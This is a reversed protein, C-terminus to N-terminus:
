TTQYFLVSDLAFPAFKHFLSNKNCNMHLITFTAHAIASISLKINSFCLEFKKDNSFYRGYRIYSSSISVASAAARPTRIEIISQGWILLGTLDRGKTSAPAIQRSTGMFLRTHRESYLGDRDLQGRRSLEANNMFVLYVSVNESLSFYM